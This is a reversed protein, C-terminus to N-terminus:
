APDAGALPVAALAPHSAAARLYVDLVIVLFILWTGNLGINLLGGLSRFGDLARSRLNPRCRVARGRLGGYLRMSMAGNTAAPIRERATAPRITDLALVLELVTQGLVPDLDVPFLESGRQLHQLLVPLRTAKVGPTQRPQRVSNDPRLRQQRTCQQIRPRRHRHHQLVQPRISHV